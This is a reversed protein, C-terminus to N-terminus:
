ARVVLRVSGGNSEIWRALEIADNEIMRICGHSAAQGMSGPDNTGHIYYAPQRFYIKVGRLPNKPDGPQRPKENRAWESDPPVWGPNWVIQGTRFTGTPTPYRRSGVAVPYQRVVDGDEIVFLSRDSLDVTLQVSRVVAHGEAAQLAAPPTFLLIPSLCFGWRAAHLKRLIFM